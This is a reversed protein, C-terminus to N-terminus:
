KEVTNPTLSQKRGIDKLPRIERNSGAPDAVENLFFGSEPLLGSGELDATQQVLTLPEELESDVVAIFWQKAGQELLLSRLDLMGARLKRLREPSTSAVLFRDNGALPEILVGVFHEGLDDRAVIVQPGDYYYLTSQYRITKM